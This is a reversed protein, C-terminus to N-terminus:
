ESESESEDPADAAPPWGWPKGNDFREIGHPVSLHVHKTHPNKGTYARWKGCPHSQGPGSMIQRNWIVYKIRTEGALARAQLWDALQQGDLGGPGPDHTFDRACVVRHCKCPNHDSTGAQHRADGIGGDSAKNRNPASANIEGLLGDKGTAGLTKAMRWSM